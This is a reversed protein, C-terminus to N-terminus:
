IIYEELKGLNLLNIDVEPKGICRSKIFDGHSDSGCTIILNNKRCWAACEESISKSHNPHFCEVGEIGLEVFQSLRKEVPADSKSYYPHALVPVGGADKVISVIEDPSPFIPNDLIKEKKGLRDFFDLVDTCIGYDILYNLAKWGGRHPAHEYKEYEEYNLNYGRDILKKIIEDDKSELMTKNKNIFENFKSNREDIGYALIHIDEGKYTSSIEVGNLFYMKNKKCITSCNELNSLTDHDTLSMLEVGNQKAMKVIEEPSWTGDSASSHIHLDAKGHLFEM